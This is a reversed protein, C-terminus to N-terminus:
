SQHKRTGLIGDFIIRKIYASTDYFVVYYFIILVNYTVRAILVGVVCVVKVQGWSAGYYYRVSYVMTTVIQGQGDQWM